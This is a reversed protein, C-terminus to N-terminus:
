NSTSEALTQKMNMKLSKYNMLNSWKTNYHNLELLSSDLKKAKALVKEIIKSISIYIVKLSITKM